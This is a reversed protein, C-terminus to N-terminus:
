KTPRKKPAPKKAAATPKATEDADEKVAVQITQPTLCAEILALPDEVPNTALNIKDGAMLHLHPGSSASGTNGSKCLIQGGKIPDGIKYALTQDTALHYYGFIKVELKGDIIVPASIEIFYGLIKTEGMNKVRGNGIAILDTGTQVSYDLGRHPGLGLKKRTEGHTGFKDSIRSPKAPHFTQVTVSKTAM